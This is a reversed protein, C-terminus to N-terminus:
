AKTPLTLHTYSVAGMASPQSPPPEIRMGALRHPTTPRLVVDPRILVAPLAGRCQLMPETPGIVDVARSAAIAYENRAPGSVLCDHM